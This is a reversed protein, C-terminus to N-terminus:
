PALRSEPKGGSHGRVSSSSSTTANKAAGFWYILIGHGAGTFVGKDDAGGAQFAMFKGDTSAVPNSAHWSKWESFFTLRKWIQGTGNLLLKFIDVPWGDIGSRLGRDRSHRDSEILTWTGNGTATLIGEPENHVGPDYSAEKVKGRELDAIMVVASEEGEKTTKHCSFTMKKDSDFFDQAELKCPPHMSQHVLKQNIIKASNGSPDIQLERTFLRYDDKALAKNQVGSQAWGLKLSTKSVAAGEFNKVGLKIPKSGPKQSMFWLQNEEGRGRGLDDVFIHPPGILLYDGTVLHMVRLFAAKPIECTLCRIQRTALDIEFADGFSRNMFAVRKNDPSISAREGFTTLVEINKPLNDLPSGSKPALPADVPMPIPTAAARFHYSGSGVLLVISDKEKRLLKVGASKAIDVGADTVSDPKTTPVFM